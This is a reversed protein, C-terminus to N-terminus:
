ILMRMFHCETRRDLMARILPINPRRIPDCGGTTAKLGAVDRAIQVPVKQIQNVIWQQGEYSVDLGYTATAM